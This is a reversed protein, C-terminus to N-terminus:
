GRPQLLNQLPGTLDTKLVLPCYSVCQQCRNCILSNVTFQENQLSIANQPCQQVCIGCGTCQVIRQITQILLRTGETIEKSTQGRVAFSGEAFLNVHVSPPRTMQIRLANLEDSYKVKGLIVLNDVLTNLNGLGSFHGELVLGGNQCPSIGITYTVQLPTQELSSQTGIPIPIGANSLAQQLAKSPIKWRWLGYQQWSVPLGVEERYQTLYTEWKKLLNPHSKRLLEFDAMKNAPCLWCGVREYGKHYMIPIPAQEQFLFLWVLLAPWNHIPLARLQGPIWPNKNIMREQSRQQSEYRRQGVFTLVGQPYHKEIGLNIPALKITKCCWRYDRAPPGFTKLDEWFRDHASEIILRESFGYQEATDHIFQITEPFEIGTDAFFISFNHDTLVQNVLLFTALSDKGGSFAVAVPLPNNKIARRIFAHAEKTKQSLINHNAKVVQDWTTSQTSLPSSPPLPQQHKRPKVAVGRSKTIMESGTKKATGIAIIEQSPSIVIVDDNVIIGTDATSIGPGLINAGKAIFPIADSDITVTKTTNPRQALLYGAGVLTFQFRWKSAIPDFTFKGLVKGDVILEEMRDPSSVRNVLLVRDNPLFLDGTGDGLYEDLMQRFFQATDHFLPRVEGPPTLPIQPNHSGCIACKKTLVLPTNCTPCWSFLIRGFYPIPM